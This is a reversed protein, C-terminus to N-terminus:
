VKVLHLQFYHQGCGNVRQNLEAKAYKHPIKAYSGFLIEYYQTQLVIFWRLCLAFAYLFFLSFFQM